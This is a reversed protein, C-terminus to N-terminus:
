NNISIPFASFASDPLNTHSILMQQELTNLKGHLLRLKGVRNRREWLCWKRLTM